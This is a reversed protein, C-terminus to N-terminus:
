LTTKDEKNEANRLEIVYNFRDRIARYREYPCVIKGLSPINFNTQLKNYEEEPIEEKLPFESITSRIYRWYSEYAEKVVIVPIGLEKSVGELIEQYTM